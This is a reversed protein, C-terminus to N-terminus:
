TTIAAKVLPYMLHAFAENHAPGPHIGDIAFQSTKNIVRKPWKPDMNFFFPTFLERFSDNCNEFLINYPQWSSLLMECGWAEKCLQLIALNKSLRYADFYADGCIDEEYRKLMPQALQSLQDCDNSSRHHEDQYYVETIEGPDLFLEVRNRAPLLGVVVDPTYHKKFALLARVMTDLGSGPKAINFYKINPNVEKRLKSIIRFPWTDHLPLGHGFTFSCGIFVIVPADTPDFEDCRFGYNNSHYHIDAPSYSTLKKKLANEILPIDAQAHYYPASLNPGMSQIGLQNQLDGSFLPQDYKTM